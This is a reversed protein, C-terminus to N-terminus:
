LLREVRLLRGLDGRVEGPEGPASVILIRDHSARNMATAVDHLNTEVHGETKQGAIERGVEVRVAHVRHGLTLLWDAPSGIRAVRAVDVCAGVAWSNAADIIERLEPPSLLCNGAAAELALMVGATEAELRTHQLLMYAFNLADQYRGFSDHAGARVPPLELNLCRVGVSAVDHLRATVEGVAANIDVTSCAVAVAGVPCKENRSYASLDVRPRAPVDSSRIGLNEMAVEVGHFGSELAALSEDRPV